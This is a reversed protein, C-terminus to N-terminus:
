VPRASAGMPYTDIRSRGAQVQRSRVIERRPVQWRDQRYHRRFGGWHGASQIRLVQRLLIAPSRARCAQLVGREAIELGDGPTACLGAGLLKSMLPISTPGSRESPTRTVTGKREEPKEATKERSRQMHQDIEEDSPERLKAAIATSYLVKGFGDRKKRVGGVGGVGGYGDGVENETDDMAEPGNDDGGGGGGCDVDM